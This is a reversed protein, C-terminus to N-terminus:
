DRLTWLLPTEPEIDIQKSVGNVEITIVMPSEDSYRSRRGNVNMTTGGACDVMAALLRRRGPRADLFRMLLTCPSSFQTHFLRTSRPTGNVRRGCPEV